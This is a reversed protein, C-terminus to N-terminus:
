KRNAIEDIKKMTKQLNTEFEIREEPTMKALRAQHSVQGARTSKGTDVGALYDVRMSRSGKKTIYHPLTYDYQLPKKVNSAPGHYNKWLPHKTYDHNIAKPNCPCTSKNTGPSKCLSCTSHEM